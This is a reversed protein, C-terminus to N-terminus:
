SKVWKSTTLIPGGVVGGRGYTQTWNNVGDTRVETLLAGVADRNSTDRALTDFNAPLAGGSADTLADAGPGDTLTDIMGLSIYPKAGSALTTANLWKITANNGGDITVTFDGPSRYLVGNVAITHPADQKFRYADVNPIVLTDGTAVAGSLTPQVKYFM